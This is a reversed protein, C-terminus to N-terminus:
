EDAFRNELNREDFQKDLLNNVDESTLEAIAKSVDVDGKSDPEVNLEKEYFNMASGTLQPAGTAENATAINALSTVVSAMDKIEKSSYQTNDSSQLQTLLKNTMLQLAKSATAMTENLTEKAEESHDKDLEAVQNKIRDVIGSM